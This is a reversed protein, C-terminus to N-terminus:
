KIIEKRNRNIVLGKYGKSVRRGSLDFSSCDISDSHVGVIGSEDVREFLIVGGVFPEAGISYLAYQDVFIYHRGENEQFTIVVDDGTTSMFANGLNDETFKLLFRGSVAEVPIQLPSGCLDKIYYCGDGVEFSFAEASGEEGEESVAHYKGVYATLDVEEPIYAQSPNGFTFRFTKGGSQMGDATRAIGAPLVVEYEGQHYEASYIYSDTSLRLEIVNNRYSDGGTKFSIGGINVPSGTTLNIVSAGGQYNIAAFDEDYWFYMVTVRDGDDTGDAAPTLQADVLSDYKDIRIYQGNEDKIFNGDADTAWTVDYGVGTVDRVPIEVPEVNITIQVFPNTCGDNEFIERPSMNRVPMLLNNTMGAPVNIVVKTAEAVPEAFSIVLKNEKVAATVGDIEESIITPLVEPSSYDVGDEYVETIKSAKVAPANPMIGVPLDYGERSFAITMSNLSRVTANNAPTAVANTYFPLDWEGAASGKVTFRLEIPANGQGNAAVFVDAPVSLSYNGDPLSGYSIIGNTKDLTSVFCSTYRRRSDNDKILTIDKEILNVRDIVKNFKLSVTIETGNCLDSEPNANWTDGDAPSTSIVEMTGNDALVKVDIDSSATVRGSKTQFLGYPIHLKYAGETINGPLTILGYADEGDADYAGTVKVGVISANKEASRCTVYKLLQSNVGYGENYGAVSKFALPEEFYLRVNWDKSSAGAVYTDGDVKVLRAGDGADAPESGESDEKEFIAYLVKEKPNELSGADWHTYTTTSSSWAKGEFDASSGTAKQSTSTSAWGLFRYGEKARAWFFFKQKVSGTVAKGSNVAIESVFTGATWSPTAEEDLSVFVEGAEVVPYTGSGDNLICHAVGRSYCNEQAAASMFSAVVAFFAFLVHLFKQNHKTMM